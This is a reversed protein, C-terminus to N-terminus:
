APEQTETDVTQEHPGIVRRHIIADWTYDQGWEWCLKSGVPLRDELPVNLCSERVIEADLYQEAPYFIAWWLQGIELGMTFADDIRTYEKAVNWM